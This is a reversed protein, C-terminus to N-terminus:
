KKIYDNINTQFHGKHNNKFQRLKAYFTHINVENKRCLEVTTMHNTDKNYYDHFAQIMRYYGKSGKNYIPKRGHYKGNKKALAIGQRQTSKIFHRQEQAIYAYINIILNDLLSRLAPDTVQKFTPLSLVTLTAGYNKIEKILRQLDKYNRSLRDLGEIVVEIKGSNMKLDKILKFMKHLAPRKTNKGSLKDTFIFKDKVGYKHFDNLQRDLHQEKTSTRGYAIKLTSIKNQKM